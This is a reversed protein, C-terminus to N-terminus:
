TRCEKERQEEWEGGFLLELYNGILSLDTEDLGIIDPGDETFGDKLIVVNGVIPVGHSATGYLASGIPNQPLGILLGEDNVVMCYPEPLLRPRVHEIGGGVTKGVTQYLPEGYDEVHMRGETNIVIGKM